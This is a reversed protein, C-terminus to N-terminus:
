SRGCTDIWAAIDDALCAALGPSTGPESRRWLAAGAVKADAPGADAELRLTRVNPHDDPTIEKLTELMASNIPYGALEAGGALGARMLDRHLSAGAAPSFRWRAANWAAGDLLAGGRVSAVFDVGQTLESVASIWDQWVVENLARLSEGTGPLDPLCCAFGRRALDRMIAVILARTRNMEEFLPPLFLIPRGGEAGIRLLWEGDAYRDYRLGGAASM